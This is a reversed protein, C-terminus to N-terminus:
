TTTTNTDFIDNRWGDRKYDDLREEAQEAEEKWLKVVSGPAYVGAFVGRGPQDVGVRSYLDPDEAPTLRAMVARFFTRVDKPDSIRTARLRERAFVLERNAAHCADEIAGAIQKEMVKRLIPRMVPKLLWALWSFKSRRLTYSLKHIKVRVARLSVMHELRDAGLEVDLHVDMGREDLEFSAIGEDALRFIGSHARLWFGIEDARATLGDLKITVLSKMTSVTRRRAKRIEVDNYTEFRLRFPLFSSQNVTRGPEIILNELLLDVEPASVELRPIPIHQIASILVPLFVNVADKVLATNTVSKAPSLISALHLSTDFLNKVDADHMVSSFTTSAQQVLADLDQRLPSDTGVKKADDRLQQLKKDANQFFDPDTLLQQISDALKSVLSEFDPDSEHHELVKNFRKKLEEWEAEDGFSTVLSWLNTLAADTEENQEVDEQATQVANELARSYILMYRKFIKSLTSVSSNYDPRQRLNSVAKKLRELIIQGEDGSLHDQISDATGQGVTVVGDGVAGAVEQIQGNM